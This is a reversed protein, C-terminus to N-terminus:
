ESRRQRRQTGSKPTDTNQQCLGTKGRVAELCQPFTTFGCNTQGGTFYACWQQQQQQPPPPQDNEALASAMLGAVGASTVVIIALPRGM